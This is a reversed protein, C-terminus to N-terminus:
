ESRLKLLWDDVRGSAALWEVWSRWLHGRLETAANQIALMQELQRLYDTTSIDGAQWLQQLAAQQEHLASAGTAAWERWTQEALRYRALSTVLRAHAQQYKDKAQLELELLEAYAADVEARYTNRILMPMSVSVGALLDAGERGLRVGITPDPKGALRHVRVQEHASAIRALAMRTAPLQHILQESDVAAIVAAPPLQPLRIAAFANENVLALLVQRADLLAFQSDAHSLQAEALALRALKLSSHDLDGAAQRKGALAASRRLLRESEVASAVLERAIDHNIMATLLTIAMDQRVKHLQAAALEVAQSALRGGATRKDHWDLQQSIGVSATTDMAQQLDIAVEPNHLPQQKARENASAAELAARASLVGANADVTRLIFAALRTAAASSDAAANVPLFAFLCLVLPLSSDPM